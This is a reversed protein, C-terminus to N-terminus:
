EVWLGNLKSISMTLANLNVSTVIDVHYSHYEPYHLPLFQLNSECINWAQSVEHAILVRVICVKLEHYLSNLPLILHNPHDLLICLLIRFLFVTLYWIIALLAHSSSMNALNYNSLGRFTNIVWLLRRCLIWSMCVKLVPLVRCNAQLILRSSFFNPQALRLLCVYFLCQWVVFKTECFM